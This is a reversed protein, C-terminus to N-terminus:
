TKKKWDHPFKNAQWKNQQHKKGTIQIKKKQQYEQKHKKGTMHFDTKKAM